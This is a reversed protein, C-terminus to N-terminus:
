LRTRPLSFVDFIASIGGAYRTPPWCLQFVTSETGFIVIPNWRWGVEESYRLVSALVISSITAAYDLVIPTHNLWGLRVEFNSIPAPANPSVSEKKLSLSKSWSTRSSRVHVCCNSICWKGYCDISRNLKLPIVTNLTKLMLVELMVALFGKKHDHDEFPFVWLHPLEM